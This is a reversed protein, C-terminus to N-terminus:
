HANELEAENTYKCLVLGLTIMATAVMLHPTFPTYGILVLLCVSILPIAFSFINLLDFNGKRMGVEWLTISLSQVILAWFIMLFFEFGTPQVFQENKLHVALAFVAGIGFFLGVMEFPTRHYHRTCLSYVAWSASGLFAYFVGQWMGWEPLHDLDQVLLVFVGSFGLLPSLLTKFSLRRGLFIASFLVVLIPYMYYILDALSADIYRFACFYGLLNVPICVSGILWFMVPQRITSWSRKITLRLCTTLFTMFSTITLFEFPPINALQVAICATLAWTFLGLCGLFTAMPAPSSHRM